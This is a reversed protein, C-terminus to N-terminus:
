RHGGVARLEAESVGPVASLRVNDVCFSTGFYNGGFGARLYEENRPAAFSLNAIQVNKNKPYVAAVAARLDFEAHHWNGDAVVDPIRGLTKAVEGPSDPASFLIAHYSGAIRAYLNVKVAPHLRYDFSLRPFKTPTFTRLGTSVVFDGGSFPTTVKLCRSGRGPALSLWMGERGPLPYWGNTDKEFTSLLGPGSSDVQWSGSPKVHKELLLPAETPGGDAEYWVRARAIMLGNQYGWVAVQGGSLPNPDTYELLKTGDVTLQLHGGHKEARVHFWHRQWPVNLRMAKEMIQAKKQEAVVKEKRMIRVITNDKGAYIFSYGSSINKGDGCLALNLNGLHRYGIRPDDINDMYQALWAEFVIDGPYRHRSWLMPADSELGGFFTWREDCPWRATVLWNGREGWWNVPALSFADDLVHRTRARVASVPTGGGPRFGVHVGTLPHADHYELVPEGGLIAATLDGDRLFELVASDTVGGQGKAVSQGARFLELAVTNKTRQFSLAYGSDPEDAECALLLRGAARQKGASLDVRLRAEGFFEGLHWLVGNASRWSYRPNAWGSMTKEKTFQEFVVSTDVPEEHFWVVLNDFAAGPGGAGGVGLRGTLPNRVASVFSLENNVYFRGVGHLVDVKLRNWGTPNLHVPAQRVLRVNGSRVRAFKVTNDDWVFTDYNKEDLYGFVLGATQSAGRKVDAGFVYEHWDRRGLVSVAAEAAGRYYVAWNGGRKVTWGSGGATWELPASRDFTERFGDTAEAHVDDFQARGRAYLGVKGQGFFPTTASLAQNGDFRGHLRGGRVSLGLTHWQGPYFGGTAHALVKEKGGVVQVLEKRGPGAPTKPTWRVLLYNDADQVYAAVGVSRATTAKVNVRCKYSDWFWNGSACLNEGKDRSLWSFRNSSYQGKTQQLGWDGRLTTWLDSRNETRAFDDTFYVPETPQYRPPKLGIGTGTSQVGTKGGTSVADFARLVVRGDWIVTVRWERRKLVLTHNGRTLRRPATGLVTARGQAIRALRLGTRTVKLVCYNREDTFHYLLEGAATRSPSGVVVTARLDFEGECEEDGFQAAWVEPGASLMLLGLLGVVRSARVVARFWGRIGPAFVNTM